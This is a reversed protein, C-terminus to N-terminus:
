KRSKPVHRLKLKRFLMKNEIFIRVLVVKSVYDAINKCRMKSTQIAPILVFYLLYSLVTSILVIVQGFLKNNIDIYSSYM